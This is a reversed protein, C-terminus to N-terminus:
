FNAIGNEWLVKISLDLPISRRAATECGQGNSWTPPRYQKGYYTGFPNARVRFSNAQANFDLMLPAFAFNTLVTSDAAVVMGKNGSILGFYSDTIHNNVNHLNLNEPSHRFYNLRYESL